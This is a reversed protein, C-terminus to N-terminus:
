KLLALTCLKGRLIYGIKGYCANSAAYDADTYLMPILGMDSVRKTVAYVLNQAYHMRRYDPLTYVSGLSALGQICRYSCCAVTKGEANKWFFFTSNDIHWKARELCQERPPVAEGIETFFLPMLAAVEEVDSERCSYLEGEAAHQPKIPEPCDYAFLRMSIGANLGSERARDIFYGALDYRLNYRYGGSLPRQASALAWAAEKEAESADDPTWIWVPYQRASHCLILRRHDSLILECEDRLIRTLVAFTYRDRALLRFDEENVCTDM